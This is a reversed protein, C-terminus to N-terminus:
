SRTSAMPSIGNLGPVIAIVTIVCKSFEYCQFTNSHSSRSIDHNGASTNM